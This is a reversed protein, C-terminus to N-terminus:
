RCTRECKPSNISKGFLLRLGGFNKSMTNRIGGTIDALNKTIAEANAISSSIQAGQSNIDGTISDINQTIGEINQTTVVVSSSTKDLNSFTNKLQNESMSNNIKLAFLRFSNSMQALNGTMIKISPRNEDVTETLVNLFETLADSTLKLSEMLQNANNTLADLEGTIAKSSFYSEIDVTTFGNIKDGDKLMLESPNEPYILNIFDVEKRDRKERTLLATTNEPLKLDRPYLVITVLTTQFNDSPKINEVKGIRYGKYYVPIKNKVPRADNFEVTLYTYTKFRFICMIVCLIVFILLAIRSTKQSIQTTLFEKMFIIINNKYLILIVGGFM